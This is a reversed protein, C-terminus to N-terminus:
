FKPKAYGYNQASPSSVTTDRTMYQSHCYWTNRPPKLETTINTDVHQSGLSSAISRSIYELRAEKTEEEKAGVGRCCCCLVGGVGKQTEKRRRGSGSRKRKKQLPCRSEHSVDEFEVGQSDTAQLLDGEHKKKAKKTKEQELPEAPSASRQTADVKQSIDEVKVGQSDTLGRM